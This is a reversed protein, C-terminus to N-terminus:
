PHHSTTFQIAQSYSTFSAVMQSTFSPLMQCTYASPCPLSALLAHSALLALSTPLQSSGALEKCAGGGVGGRRERVGGVGGRREEWAVEASRGRWRQAGESWERQEADAALPAHHVQAQEAQVHSSKLNLLSSPSTSGCGENARMVRM